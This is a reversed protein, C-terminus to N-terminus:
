ILKHLHKPVEPVENLFLTKKGEAARERAVFESWNTTLSAIFIVGRYVIEQEVLSLLYNENLNAVEPIDLALIDESTYVNPIKAKMLEVIEWSYSPHAVYVCSLNNEEMIQEVGRVVKKSAMSIYTLLRNCDLKWANRLQMQCVEGTRNRWHMSLFPRGQCLHYLIADVRHRLSPTRKLNKDILDIIQRKRRHTVEMKMIRWFDLPKFMGLCKVKNINLYRRQSEEASEPMDEFSPMSINTVEKLNSRTKKYAHEYVSFSKRNRETYPNMLMVEVSGNCLTHFQEPTIVPLAQALKGREFTDDFSWFFSEDRHGYHNAFPLTVIARNRTIAYFLGIKFNDYHFNPGGQYFNIALLYKM